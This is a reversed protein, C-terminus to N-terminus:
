AVMRVAMEKGSERPTVLLNDLMGKGNGSEWVEGVLVEGTQRTALTLPSRNRHRERLFSRKQTEVLRRCIESDDVLPLAQSESIM